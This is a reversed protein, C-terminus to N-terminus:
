ENNITPNETTLEKILKELPSYSRDRVTFMDETFILDTSPEIDKPVICSADIFFDLLSTATTDPLFQPHYRSFGM